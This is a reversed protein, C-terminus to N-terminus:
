KPFTKVFNGCNSCKVQTSINKHKGGTGTTRVDRTFRAGCNPWSCIYKIKVIDEKEDSM